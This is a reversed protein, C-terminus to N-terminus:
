IEVDLVPLEIPDSENTLKANPHPRNINSTNGYRLIYESQKLCFDTQNKFTEVKIYFQKWAM